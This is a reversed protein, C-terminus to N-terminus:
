RPLESDAGREGGAEVEKGTPLLHVRPKPELRPRKDLVGPDGRTDTTECCSWTERLLGLEGNALDERRPVIESGM